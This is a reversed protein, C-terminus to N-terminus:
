ASCELKCDNIFEKLNELTMNPIRKVICYPEGTEPNEEGTYYTVFAHNDYWSVETNNAGALQEMAEIGVLRKNTDQINKVYAYDSCPM